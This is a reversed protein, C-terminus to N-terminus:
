RSPVYDLDPIANSSQGDGIIKQDHWVLSFGHEEDWTCAFNLHVSWFAPRQVPVFEDPVIEGTFPNKLKSPPGSSAPNLILDIGCLDLHQNMSESSSPKELGEDCWFLESKKSEIFRDWTAQTVLVPLKGIDQWFQHLLLLSESPPHTDAKNSGFICIRTTNKARRRSRDLCFHDFAPINVNLIWERGDRQLSDPDPPSWNPNM